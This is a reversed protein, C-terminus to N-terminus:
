TCTRVTGAKVLERWKPGLTERASIGQRAGPDGDKLMKIALGQEHSGYVMTPGPTYTTTGQYTAMGGYATATGYTNYQGPLQAVHVNNASNAGGIIYRDYGAKLTEIAAQKQAVKAAGIGGCAPAASTQVIATDASTRITSSSACAGLLICPLAIGIIRIM